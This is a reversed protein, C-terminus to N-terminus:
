DYEPRFANNNVTPYPTSTSARPACPQSDTDCRPLPAREPIAHLAAARQVRKRYTTTKPSGEAVYARRLCTDLRALLSSLNVKRLSASAFNFARVANAPFASRTGSVGGVRVECVFHSDWSVVPAGPTGQRSPSFSRIAAGDAVVPDHDQADDAQAPGPRHLM